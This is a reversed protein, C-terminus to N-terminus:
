LTTSEISQNPLPRLFLPIFVPFEIYSLYYYRLHISKLNLFAAQWHAPPKATLPLRCEGIESHKQHLIHLVQAM